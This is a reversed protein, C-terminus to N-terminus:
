RKRSARVQSSAGEPVGPTCMGDLISHALADSAVRVVDDSTPWLHTYASLTVNPSHHGLAHQVTAVMAGGAILGSAYFHRLSHMTFGKIKADAMATSWRWGAIRPTLPALTGTLVYCDRDVGQPILPALLDLLEQSVPITRESTASKLPRAQAVGNLFQVQRRVRIQRHLFDVDGVQLGCIEGARLGALAGLTIAKRTTADSVSLVAAVQEPTPVKM